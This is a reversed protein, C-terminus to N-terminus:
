EDFRPEVVIYKNLLEALKQADEWFYFRAIKIPPHGFLKVTLFSRIANRGFYLGRRNCIQSVKSFSIKMPMKFINRIINVFFLKNRLEIKKYFFDVKVKNTGSLITYLLVLNVVFASFHWWLSYFQDIFLSVM